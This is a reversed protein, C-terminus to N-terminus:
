SLIMREGEVSLFSMISIHDAPRAYQGRPSLIEVLKYYAVRYYADQRDNEMIFYLNNM